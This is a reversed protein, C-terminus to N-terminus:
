DLVKTIKVFRYQSKLTEAVLKLHEHDQSFGMVVSGSGTMMCHDCGLELLQKKIFSIEPVLEIARKELANGMNDYLKYVDGTELADAIKLIDPHDCADIQLDMFALKTSVGKHPQVLLLHMPDKVEFFKLKEGIGSVIAPRNFLCFPVDAGVKLGLDIKEQQTLNWKFCDNLYNIVAAADGSGGGLGAQSPINKHLHIRFQQEFPRAERCVEVARLLTNKEPLIRYPPICRFFPHTSPEIDILDYLGIPLMVMHLEHYGDERKSLVDLGLNIKAYAKIKM